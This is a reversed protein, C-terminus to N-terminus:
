AGPRWDAATMWLSLDGPADPRKARVSASPLHLKALFPREHKGIFRELAAKTRVVNEALEAHPVKGVLFIVGVKARMVASVENPQYRIRHNRSLVYWGRAGVEALWDEDPTTSGFHNDHIHVVFGAARLREPLRRGLDRDTFFAATL